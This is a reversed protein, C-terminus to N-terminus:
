VVQQHCHSECTEIAHYFLREIKISACTFTDWLYFVPGSELLTVLFAKKAGRLKM